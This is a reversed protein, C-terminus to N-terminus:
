CHFSIDNSLLYFTKSLRNAFSHFGRKVLFHVVLVPNWWNIFIFSEWKNRKQQLIKWLPQLFNLMLFSHYVWIVKVVFLTKQVENEWYFRKKRPPCRLYFASKKKKTSLDEFRKLRPSTTADFELFNFNALIWKILIIKLYIWLTLVM